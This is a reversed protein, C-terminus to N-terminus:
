ESTKALGVRRIMPVLFTLMDLQPDVLYTRKKKSPHISPNTKIEKNKKERTIGETGSPDDETAM